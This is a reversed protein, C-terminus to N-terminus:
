WRFGKWKEQQVKTLFTWAVIRSTKQGQGMEIAKVVTAKEDKLAQYMGKLTTQKSVLTSFWFCSTAFHKSEEIMKKIFVVEGGDCWLENNQGGFNLRVKAVKEKKLNSLKRRSSAQAEKLSAHFPPNCITLDIVDEKQIIGQFINKISQQQRIEIKKKLSPNSAVIDKASQIAIPDIDAGIFSWGYEKVGIIPYICNAGVGIDLCKIKSGRPIKQEEQNGLVDAIHHLYDARGPIPPVLYNPPIKWQVIEYHEMLLAKNLLQVAEANFFDISEAGYKNIQVFPALAPCVKILQNFNYGQRHKNRPHLKSKTSRQKKKNTSERM